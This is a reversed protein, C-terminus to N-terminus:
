WVPFGDNDIAPPNSIGIRAYEGKDLARWADKTPPELRWRKDTVLQMKPDIVILRRIPKLLYHAAYTKGSGTKGAFAVRQFSHITLEPMVRQVRSSRYTCASWRMPRATAGRSRLLATAIARSPLARFRNSM